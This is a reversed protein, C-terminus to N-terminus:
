TFRAQQHHADVPDPLSFRLEPPAQRQIRAFLEDLGDHTEAEDDPDIYLCDPTFAQEILSRRHAPDRENIADIM